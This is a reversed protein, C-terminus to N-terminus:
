LILRSKGTILLFEKFYYKNIISSRQLQLLGLANETLDRNLEIYYKNLLYIMRKLKIETNKKKMRDDDDNM